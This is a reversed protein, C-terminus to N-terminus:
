LNTSPRGLTELLHGANAM